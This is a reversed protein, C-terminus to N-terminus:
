WSYIVPFNQLVVNEHISLLMVSMLKLLLNLFLNRLSKKMWPVNTDKTINEELSFERSIMYSQPILPILFMGKGSLCSNISQINNSGNILFILNIESFFCGLNM